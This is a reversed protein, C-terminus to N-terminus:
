KEGLETNIKVDKVRYSYIYDDELKNISINIDSVYTETKKYFEDCLSRVSNFIDLELNGKLERFENLTISM